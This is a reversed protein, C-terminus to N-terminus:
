RRDTESIYELLLDIEERTLEPFAPHPINGWEAKIKKSYGDGAAVMSDPNRFWHYKWDGGPIRDLVGPMRKCTANSGPSEHCSLCSKEFLAVTASDFRFRKAKASVDTCIIPQQDSVADENAIREEHQHRFCGGTFFLMLYLIWNKM